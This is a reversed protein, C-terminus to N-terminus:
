QLLRQATRVLMRQLFTRVGLALDVLYKLFEIRSSAAVARGTCLRTRALRSLHPPLAVVRFVIIEVLARL